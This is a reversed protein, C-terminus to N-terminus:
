VPRDLLVPVIRYISLKNNNMRNSLLYVELRVSYYNSTFSNALVLKAGLSIRVENGIKFIMLIINQFSFTKRTVLGTQTPELFAHNIGGGHRDLM